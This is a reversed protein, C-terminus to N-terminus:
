SVLSCSPRVYDVGSSLRVAAIGLRRFNVQNPAERDRGLSAGDLPHPTDVVVAMVGPLMNDPHHGSM